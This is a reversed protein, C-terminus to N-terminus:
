RHREQRKKLHMIQSCCRQAERHWIIGICQDLWSYSFLVMSDLSFHCDHQLPKNSTRYQIDHKVVFTGQFSSRSSPSVVLRPPLPPNSMCFIKTGLRQAQASQHRFDQRRNAQFKPEFAQRFRIRRDTRCETARWFGNPDGM